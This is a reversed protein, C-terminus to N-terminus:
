IEGDAQLLRNMVTKLNILASEYEYLGRLYALSARLYDQQYRILRDTDSRGKNFRDEEGLYKKHELEKAEKQLKVADYTNKAHIYADHTQVLILCETKKLNVLAKAKELEKQSYEARATSNELPFSFIVEVAYEYQNQSTIEKISDNFKAALGNRKFTGKLDIQPWLSNKKMQIYLDMAKVDNKAQKYDRRSGLASAIVEEFSVGIEEPKFEDAPKVVTDKSLNLKFRMRNLAASLKDNALLVDRQRQKLNAQVAYLEPPEVLGIDFNKQSNLYLSKAGDMIEQTVEVNKYALLLNWYSRQTDALEAEIKDMSTYGTNEVDLGTIKVTNRDIIGLANKGLSQTVSITATSEHYPNLTSFSSDTAQRTHDAGLSLITGSPLTKELTASQGIAVTKEGFIVSSRDLKDRDYKYSADLTTDYVAQAKLLEKESIRKDLKYVQIDFNNELALHNVENINLELADQQAYLTVNPVSILCIILAIRYLRM